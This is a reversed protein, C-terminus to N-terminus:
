ALKLSEDLVERSRSSPAPETALKRGICFLSTRNLHAEVVCDFNVNRYWQEVEDKEHFSTFGATYADFMNHVDAGVYIFRNVFDDIWAGFFKIRFIQCPIAALVCLYYVYQHPWNRFFQNRLYTNVRYLFTNGRGYLFMSLFGGDKVAKSLNYFAGRADPTHHLVGISYIYDAPQKLVKPVLNLDMKLFVVNDHEACNRSALYVNDSLEVGIVLKPRPSSIRNVINIYRGNGCGADVVVKDSFFSPMSRTYSLFMGTETPIEGPTWGLKPYYKNWEVEFSEHTRQQLPDTSNCASFDVVNGKCPFSHNSECWLADGRQTLSSSCIPCKFLQQLNM